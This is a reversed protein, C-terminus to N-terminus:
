IDTWLTRNLYQLIRNGLSELQDLSLLLAQEHAQIQGLLDRDIQDEPYGYIQLKNATNHYLKREETTKCMKQLLQIIELGETDESLGSIGSYFLSFNYYIESLLEDMKDFDEKQLVANYVEIINRFYHFIDSRMRDENLQDLHDNIITSSVHITNLYLQHVSEAYAKRNIAEERALIRKFDRHENYLEPNERVLQEELYNVYLAHLDEKLKAIAKQCRLLPIKEDIFALLNVFARFQDAYHNLLRIKIESSRDDSDQDISQLHEYLQQYHHKFVSQIDM